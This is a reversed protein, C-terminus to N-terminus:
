AMPAPRPRVETVVRTGTRRHWGAAFMTAAISILQAGLTVWAAAAAVAAAKDAADKALVKEEDTLPKAQDNRQTQPSIGPMDLRNATVAAAGGAGAGLGSFRGGVGPAAVALALCMGVAWTIGGFVFSSYPRDHRSCANLVWGGILGTALATLLIWIAAGIGLTSSAKEATDTNVTDTTNIGVAGATIGLAAGLTSMLIVVAFGAFAGALIAGWQTRSSWVAEPVPVYGPIGTRGLDGTNEVNGLPTM